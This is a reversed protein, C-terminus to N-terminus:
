KEMSLAQLDDLIEKREEQFRLYMSILDLAINLIQKHQEDFEM